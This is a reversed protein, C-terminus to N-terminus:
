GGIMHPRVWTWVTGAAMGPPNEWAIRACVLFPGTEGTTDYYPDGLLATGLHAMHVRIQHM